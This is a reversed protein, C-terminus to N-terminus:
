TLQAGAQLLCLRYSLFARLNEEAKVMTLLKQEQDLLELSFQHAGKLVAGLCVKESKKDQPLLHHLRDVFSRERLRWFRERMNREDMAARNMGRERSSQGKGGRRCPFSLMKRPGELWRWEPYVASKQPKPNKIKVTRTALHNQGHAVQREKVSLVNRNLKFPEEVELKMREEVPKLLSLIHRRGKVLISRRKELKRLKWEPQGQQLNSSQCPLCNSQDVSDLNPNFVEVGSNCTSDRQPLFRLKSSSVEEGIQWVQSDMLATQIKPLFTGLRVTKQSFNARRDEPKLPMSGIGEKMVAPVTKFSPFRSVPLDVPDGVVNKRGSCGNNELNDAGGTCEDEADSEPELLVHCSEMSANTETTHVEVVSDFEPGLSPGGEELTKLLVEADFNNEKSSLESPNVRLPDGPFNLNNKEAEYIDFDSCFDQTLADFHRGVVFEDLGVDGSFFKNLDFM